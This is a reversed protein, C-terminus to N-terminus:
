PRVKPAGLRVALVRVALFPCLWCPSLHAALPPGGYAAPTLDPSAGNATRCSEDRGGPPLGVARRAAAGPPGPSRGCATRATDAGIGRGAALVLGDPM